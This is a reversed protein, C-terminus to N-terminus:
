RNEDRQMRQRERQELWVVRADIRDLRKQIEITAVVVKAVDSQIYFLSGVMAVIGLITLARFVVLISGNLSFTVQQEAKKDM